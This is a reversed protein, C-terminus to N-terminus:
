PGSGATQGRCRLRWCQQTRSATAARRQRFSRAAAHCSHPGLQRHSRHRSQGPSCGRAGRAGALRPHPHSSCPSPAAHATWVASRRRTHVHAGGPIHGMNTVQKRSGEVRKAKVGTVGATRSPRYAHAHAHTQECEQECDQSGCGHTGCITELDHCLVDDAFGDFGTNDSGVHSRQSPWRASARPGSM